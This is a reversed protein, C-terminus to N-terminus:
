LWCQGHGMEAVMMTVASGRAPPEAVVAAGQAPRLVAAPPAKLFTLSIACGRSLGRSGSDGPEQSDQLVGVCGSLPESRSNRRCPHQVGSM